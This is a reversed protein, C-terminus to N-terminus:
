AGVVEHGISVSDVHARPCAVFLANEARGVIRRVNAAQGIAGGREAFDDLRLRVKHIKFADAAAFQHM